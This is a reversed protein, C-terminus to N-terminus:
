KASAIHGIRKARIEELAKLFDNQNILLKEPAINADIGRLISLLGAERCVAALEAGSYGETNKGISQIDILFATKLKYIYTKLIVERGKENPVDVKIHYDFRGSRRIAPDIAEIRKTTAIVVLRGRSELGDLLVLLQSVLTIEYNRSTM